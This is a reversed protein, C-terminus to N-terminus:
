FIVDQYDASSWCTQTACNLEFLQALLVVFIKFNGYDFFPRMYSRVDKAAVNKFGSREILEKWVPFFHIRRQSGLHGFVFKVKELIFFRRNLNRLKQQRFRNIVVIIVDDTQAFYTLPQGLLSFFKADFYKRTNSAVLDKKVVIIGSNDTDPSSVHAYRFVSWLFIAELRSDVNQGFLGNKRFPAAAWKSLPHLCFKVQLCTSYTILVISDAELFNPLNGVSVWMEFFSRDLVRNSPGQSWIDVGAAKQVMKPGIQYM